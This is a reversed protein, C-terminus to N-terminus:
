IIELAKKSKSGVLLPPWVVHFERLVRNRWNQGVGAARGEPRVSEDSPPGQKHRKADEKLTELNYFGMPQQNFLGVFFELPYYYKLWAAQYATVGFAFAHAEPFQFEGHFKGFIKEATELPVGKKMAGAIFKEHWMPVLQAANRRSFARRM